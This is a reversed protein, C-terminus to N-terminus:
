AHTSRSTPHSAQQPLQADGLAARLRRRARYLRVRFATASIGLSRAAELPTLEEWAILILAERDDLSLQRLAQELAADLGLRPAPAFEGDNLRALAAREQTERRWENMLLNRTTAILWPRPDGDPVAPLRRWAIAMVEAATADPDLGGRRRAYAAVLELHDFLEAFRREANARGSRPDM